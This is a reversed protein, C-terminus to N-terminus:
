FRASLGLYVLWAGTRGFELELSGFLTDGLPVFVGGDLRGWGFLSPAGKEFYVDFGWEVPLGCCGPVLGSLSLREFYAAEGTVARNHTPDNPDFCTASSVEATDGVAYSFEIGYVSIGDISGTFPSDALFEVYPQVGTCASGILTQLTPELTKGATQVKVHLDLTTELFPTSLLDVPIGRAFFELADFGTDSFSLKVQVPIGCDFLLADLRVQAADFAVPAASCSLGDLCPPCESTLILFRAFANWTMGAVAGRIGLQDYSRGTAGSLFLTNGFRLDGIRWSLLWSFYRFREADSASPDFVAQARSDLPGLRGDAGLALFTFANDSLSARTYFAWGGPSRLRLLLALDSVSASFSPSPDYSFLVRGGLEGDFAFSSAQAALAGSAVFLLVLVLGLRAKRRWDGRDM